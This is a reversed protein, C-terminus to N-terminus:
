NIVKPNKRLVKMNVNAVDSIRMKITVPMHDWETLSGVDLSDVSASYFLDCSMIFYDIVRSGTKSIYTYRDDFGCETLGNLIMCEYMDCLDILQNSLSLSLSLCVSLCVSM